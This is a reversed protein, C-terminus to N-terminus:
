EVVERQVKSSDEEIFLRFRYVRFLSKSLTIWNLSIQFTM